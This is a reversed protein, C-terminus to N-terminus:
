EIPAAPCGGSLVAHAWEGADLAQEGILVKCLNGDADFVRLHPLPGVGYQHAVPSDGDGVDVKRVVIRPEDGIELMLQDAVKVCAGCWDAWFDVVTVSGHVLAVDLDVSEGPENLQLVKLAPETPETPGDATPFSGCACLACVAGIGAAIAGM